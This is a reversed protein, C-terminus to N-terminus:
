VGLGEKWGVVEENIMADLGMQVCIAAKAGTEVNSIPMSNNVISEHFDVLAQKSPDEHAVEIPIGKGEEWKLTAGSVGDVNGMQKNLKGEPYFWAKVYDVIITGKDGLVTIKYDDKANNTLCTFKAKEGNPYSYVLHVNDFTERGDKWYDIGM